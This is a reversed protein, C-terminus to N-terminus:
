LSDSLGRVCASAQPFCPPSSLLASPLSCADWASPAPAFVSLPNHKSHKLAVPTCHTLHSVSCILAPVPDASGSGPYLEPLTGPATSSPPHPMIQSPNKFPNRQSSCRSYAKHLWILLLSVPQPIVATAWPLGLGPASGPSTTLFPSMGSRHQLYYCYSNSLSPIHFM